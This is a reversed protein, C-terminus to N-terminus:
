AAPRAVLVRPDPCPEAHLSRDLPMGMKVYHGGVLLRPRAEAPFCDLASAIERVREAHEPMALSVGLAKPELARALEVIEASPLGPDVLFTSRGGSLLILEVLRLGATHYNGDAGVLLFDPSKAKRAGAEKPLRALAASTVSEVLATFRHETAVSIEGHEWAEGLEVLAPQLMGVLLDVPRIGLAAAEDLFRDGSADFGRRAQLRLERYFRALPQIAEVAAEDTPTSKSVCADCVGHTMKYSDLPAVEGQFTQCYACWQIMPRGVQM